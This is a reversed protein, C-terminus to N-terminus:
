KAPRVFLLANERGFGDAVYRGALPDVVWREGDVVFMYEHQGAPLIVNANWIGDHDEDALLTVGERWDNFSGVVAVSRAGPFRGVFQAIGEEAGLAPGTDGPAVLLAAALAAAAALTYVPRLSVTVSRSNTLWQIARRVPTRAPRRLAALVRDEVSAPSRGAALTAGIETVARVDARLEPSLTAPDLEGDLAAHARPDIEKM